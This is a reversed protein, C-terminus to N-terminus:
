AGTHFILSIVKTHDVRLVQNIGMESFLYEGQQWSTTITLATRVGTPEKLLEKDDTGAVFSPETAMWAAM